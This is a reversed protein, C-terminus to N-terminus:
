SRKKLLKLITARLLEIAQAGSNGLTEASNRLPAKEEPNLKLKILDKFGNDELICPISLSVEEHIGYLGKSLTSFLHGRRPNQMLDVVSLSITWSTNGIMKIIEYASSDSNLINIM